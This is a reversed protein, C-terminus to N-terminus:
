RVRQVDSVLSYGIGRVTKIIETQKRDPDLKRRLRSIQNDISRDFPSWNHGHLADMIEDRSLVTQPNELFVMLLNFDGTTLPCRKGDFLSRMELKSPFVIWQDFTIQDIGKVDSVSGDHEDREERAMQDIRRLLARVRAAIERADFPKFFHDDAGDELAQIRTDRDSDKSVTVVPLHRNRSMFTKPSMTGLGRFELDLLVLDIDERAILENPDDNRSAATARITQDTFVSQLADVVGTDNDAILINKQDRSM